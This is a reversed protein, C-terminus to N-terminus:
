ERGVVQWSVELGAGGGAIAFGNEEPLIELVHLNPAPRGMPTLQFHSQDLDVGSEEPLLVTAGGNEGLVVRGSLLHTSASDVMLPHYVLDEGNKGAGKKGIIFDPATVAGEAFMPGYGHFLGEDNMLFKLLGEGNRIQFAGGDFGRQDTDLVFTIHRNSLVAFSSNEEEQVGIIGSSGQLRLDAETSIGNDLMLPATKVTKLIIIKGDKGREIRDKFRGTIKLPNENGVWTQGLHDHADSASAIGKWTKSLEIAEAPGVQKDGDVDYIQGHSQSPLVFLVPFLILILPKM